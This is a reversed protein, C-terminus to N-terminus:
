NETSVSSCETKAFGPFRSSVSLSNESNSAVRSVIRPTQILVSFKEKVLEMVPPTLILIEM